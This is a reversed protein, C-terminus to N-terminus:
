WLASRAPSPVAPTADLTTPAIVSSLCRTTPTAMLTEDTIVQGFTILDPDIPRHIPDFREVLQQGYGAVGASGNDDHTSVAVYRLV